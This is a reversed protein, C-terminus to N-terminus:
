GRPMRINGRLAMLSFRYGSREAETQANALQGEIRSINAQIRERDAGTAERGTYYDRLQVQRM